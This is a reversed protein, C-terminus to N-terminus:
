AERATHALLVKLAVRRGLSQQEAEYVTGMGGRGLERVICYDGVMRLPAATAGAGQFPERRDGEVQEIEVLAPFLDRIEQALQPYRDTYERLSPREGRRYRDAFEEALQDLLPYEGSSHTTM